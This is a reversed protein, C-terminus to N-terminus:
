APPLVGWGVYSSTHLPCVPWVSATRTTNSGAFTDYASRSFFNKSIWSGVWPM